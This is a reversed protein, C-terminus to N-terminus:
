RKARIAEKIRAWSGLITVALAGVAVLGGLLFAANALPHMM